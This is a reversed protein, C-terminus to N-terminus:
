RIINGYISRAMRIKVRSKKLCNLISGGGGVTFKIDRRETVHSIKMILSQILIRLENSILNHLGNVGAARAAKNAVYM